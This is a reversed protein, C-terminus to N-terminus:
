FSFFFHSWASMWPFLVSNWRCTLSIYLTKESIDLYKTGVKLFTQLHQTFIEVTRPCILSPWVNKSMGETVFNSRPRRAQGKTAETKALLIHHFHCQPVPLKWKKDRSVSTWKHVQFGRTLIILRSSLSHSFTGLGGPPSSPRPPAWVELQRRWADLMHEVRWVVMYTFGVSHGQKSSCPASSDGIQARGLNRVWLLLCTM